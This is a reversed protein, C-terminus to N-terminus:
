KSPIPPDQCIESLRLIFSGLLDTLRMLPLKLALLLSTVEPFITKEPALLLTRVIPEPM